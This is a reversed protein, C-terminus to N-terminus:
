FIPTRSLMCCRFFIPSVFGNWRRKVWLLFWLSNMKYLVSLIENRAHQHEFAEIEDGNVKCCLVMSLFIIRNETWHSANSILISKPQLSKRRQCFIFLNQTQLQNPLLSWVCTVWTDIEIDRRRHRRMGLTELFGISLLLSSFQWVDELENCPELAWIFSVRILRLTEDDM